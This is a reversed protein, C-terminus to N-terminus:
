LTTCGHTSPDAARDALAAAWHELLVSSRECRRRGVVFGVPFQNKLFGVDEPTREQSM